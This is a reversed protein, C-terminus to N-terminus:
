AFGRAANLRRDISLKTVFTKIPIYPLLLFLLAWPSKFLRFSEAKWVGGMFEGTFYSSKTLANKSSNMFFYIITKPMVDYLLRQMKHIDFKM